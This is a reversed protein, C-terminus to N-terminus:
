NIMFITSRPLGIKKKKAPYWFPTQVMHALGRFGHAKAPYKHKGSIQRYVPYFAAKPM